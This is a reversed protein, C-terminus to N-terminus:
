NIGGFRQEIERARGLLNFDNIISNKAATKRANYTRTMLSTMKEEAQVKGHVKTPNKWESYLNQYHQSRFMRDIAGRMDDGWYDKRKGIRKVYEEYEHPTLRVETGRKGIKLIHTPRPIDLELDRMLHTLSPSEDAKRITLFSWVPNHFVGPLGSDTGSEHKVQDGLFNRATPVLDSHASSTALMQATYGSWDEPRNIDAKEPHLDYTKLEAKGPSKLKEYSRVFAPQLTGTISKLARTWDGPESSSDAMVGLVKHLSPAWTPDVLNKQLSTLGKQILDVSNLDEKADMMQSVDAGMM